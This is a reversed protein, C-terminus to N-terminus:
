KYTIKFIPVNQFDGLFFSHNVGGKLLITYRLGAVKSFTFEVLTITFHHKESM